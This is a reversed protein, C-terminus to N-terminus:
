RNYERIKNGRSDYHVERTKVVPKPKSQEEIAAQIFGVIIFGVGYFMGNLVLMITICLALPIGIKIAIFLFVIADIVIAIGIWFLGARDPDNFIAHGIGSSFYVLSGFILIYFPIVMLCSNEHTIPEYGECKECAAGNLIDCIVCYGFVVGAIVLVSLVIYISVLM